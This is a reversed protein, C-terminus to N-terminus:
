WRFCVRPGSFSVFAHGQMGSVRSLLGLGEALVTEAQLRRDTERDRAKRIAEEAGKMKDTGKCQGRIREKEEYEMDVMNSKGKRKKKAAM